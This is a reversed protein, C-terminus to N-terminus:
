RRAALRRRLTMAFGEAEDRDECVTYGVAGDITEIVIKHSHIMLLAIAALGVCVIVGAWAWGPYPIFAKCVYALALFVAILIMPFVFDGRREIRVDRIDTLPFEAMVAADPGEKRLADGAVALGTKPLALNASNTKTRM